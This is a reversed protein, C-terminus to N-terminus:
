RGNEGLFRALVNWTDSECSTLQSQWITLSLSLSVWERGPWATTLRNLEDDEAQAALDHWCSLEPWRDRLRVLTALLNTSSGKGKGEKGFGMQYPTPWDPRVVLTLSWRRVVETGDFSMANSETFLKVLESVDIDQEALTEIVRALRYLVQWVRVRANFEVQGQEDGPYVPVAWFLRRTLPELNANSVIASVVLQLTQPDKIPFCGLKANTHSELLTDIGSSWHKLATSAAVSLSTSKCWHAVPTVIHGLLQALVLPDGSSFDVAGLFNAVQLASWQAHPM